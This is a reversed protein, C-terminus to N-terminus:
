HATAHAIPDADIDPSANADPHTHATPWRSVALIPARHRPDCANGTSESTRTIPHPDAFTDADQHPEGAPQGTRIAPHTNTANASAYTINAVIHM